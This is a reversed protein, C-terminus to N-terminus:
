KVMNNQKQCEAIVKKLFEMSFNRDKKLQEQAYTYDTCPKLNFVNEDSVIRETLHYRNLFDDYKADEAKRTRRLLYFEKQYLLSVACAHFSDTCIFDANKILWIFEYPTGDLVIDYPQEEDIHHMPLVIIQKNTKERIKKVYEWYRSDKMVFYCLIYGDKSIPVSLKAKEAYKDWEDTTLLLSPDVVKTVKRHIIPELMDVVSQERVGVEIMSGLYRKYARYYKKPLKTAGVSSAYSFRSLGAYYAFDLFPVAPYGRAPNWVIDSGSVFITKDEIAKKWEASSVYSKLTFNDKTFKKLRTEREETKKYEEPLFFAKRQKKQLKNVLRAYTLKPHRIYFMKYSFKELFSVGYGFSTLTHKLGLAQINSGYNETGFFTVICIDNSDKM